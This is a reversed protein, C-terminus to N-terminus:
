NSDKKVFAAETSLEKKANIKERAGEIQSVVADKVIIADRGLSVIQLHPIILEGRFFDRFIGGSVIIKSLKNSILDVEYDKVEGLDSGSETLVKNDKIKIKEKLIESVKRNEYPNELMKESETMVANEGFNKVNEARIFFKASFILGPKLCFIGLFRGNAHDIILDKIKCLKKGGGSLVPLFIIKSYKAETM